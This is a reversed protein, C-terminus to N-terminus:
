MPPFPAHVKDLYQMDRSLETIRAAHSSAVRSIQCSVPGYTFCTQGTSRLLEIVRGSVCLGDSSNVIDDGNWDSLDLAFRFNKMSSTPEQQLTELRKCEFCYISIDRCESCFYPHQNGCGPCPTADLRIRVGERLWSSGVLVKYLGFHQGLLDEKSTFKGSAARRDEANIRLQDLFRAGSIGAGDIVSILRKHCAIIGNLFSSGVFGELYKSFVAFKASKYELRILKQCKPCDVSEIDFDCQDLLGADDDFDVIRPDPVFTGIM